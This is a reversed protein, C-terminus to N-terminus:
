PPSLTPLWGHLVPLRLASRQKPPSTPTGLVPPSPDLCLPAGAALLKTAMPSTGHTDKGFEVEGDEDDSGLFDGPFGDIYDDNDDKNATISELLQTYSSLQTSAAEAATLAQQAGSGPGFFAALQTASEDAPSLNRRGLATYHAAPFSIQNRKNSSGNIRVPSTYAHSSAAGYSPQTAGHNNSIKKSSHCIASEEECYDMDHNTIGQTLVM